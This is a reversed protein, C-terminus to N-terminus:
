GACSGRTIMWTTISMVIVLNRLSAGLLTVV